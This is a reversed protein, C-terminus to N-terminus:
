DSVKKRRAMKLKTTKIKLRLKKVLPEVCERWLHGDDTEVSQIEGDYELEVRVFRFGDGPGVTLEVSGHPKIAKEFEARNQFPGIPMLEKRYHMSLQGNDWKVTYLLNGTVTRYAERCDTVTGGQRPAVDVKPGEMPGHDPYGSETWVRSGVTPELSIEKATMSGGKEYGHM